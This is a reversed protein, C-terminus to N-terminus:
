TKRSEAAPKLSTAVHSHASVSGLLMAQRKGRGVFTCLTTAAFPVVVRSRRCSHTQRAATPRGVLGSRGKSRLIKSGALVIEPWSLSLQDCPRASRFGM